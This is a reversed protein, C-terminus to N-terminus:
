ERVIQTLGVQAIERFKPFESTTRGLMPIDVCLVSSFIICAVAGSEPVAQQRPSLREEGGKGRPLQIDDGFFQVAVEM